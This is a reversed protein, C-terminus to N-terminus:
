SSRTWRMKKLNSQKADPKGWKDGRITAIYRLHEQGTYEQQVCSFM